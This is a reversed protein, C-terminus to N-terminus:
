IYLQMVIFVIGGIIICMISNAQKMGVCRTISRIVHVAIERLIVDKIACTSFRPQWATCSNSIRRSVKSNCTSVKPPLYSLAFQSFQVSAHGRVHLIETATKMYTWHRILRWHNCLEFSKWSEMEHDFMQNAEKVHM